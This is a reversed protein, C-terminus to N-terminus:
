LKSHLTYLTYHCLLILSNVCFICCIGQCSPSCPRIWTIYCKWWQYCCNRNIQLSFYHILVM